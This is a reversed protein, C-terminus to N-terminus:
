PHVRRHSLWRVRYKQAVGRLVRLSSLLNALCQTRGADPHKEILALQPAPVNPILLDPVLDVVAREENRNDGSCVARSPELAIEPKLPLKGISRLWSIAAASAGKEHRDDNVPRASPPRIDRIREVRHLPRAQGAPSVGGAKTSRIFRRSDGSSDCRDSPGGATARTSSGAIWSGTGVERRDFGASSAITATTTMTRPM